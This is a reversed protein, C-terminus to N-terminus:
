NFLIHYHNCMQHYELRFHTHPKIDTLFFVQGKRVLNIIGASREYCVFPVWLNTMIRPIQDPRCKRIPFSSVCIHNGHEVLSNNLLPFNKGSDM